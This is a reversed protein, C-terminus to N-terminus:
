LCAREAFSTLTTDPCQLSRHITYVVETPETGKFTPESWSDPLSLLSWCFLFASYVTQVDFWEEALLRWNSGMDWSTVWERIGHNAYCCVFLGIEMM